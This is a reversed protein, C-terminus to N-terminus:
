GESALAVVMGRLGRTAFKVFEDDLDASGTDLWELVSTVLYDIVIRIAWDRFRGPPIVEGMVEDAVALQVHRVEDAYEAFEEERQAHVFLLRFGDPLARAVPLFAAIAGGQASPNARALKWQQAMLSSVEELIARYLSEKSDFHRYVILKTVGAEAAVAEM